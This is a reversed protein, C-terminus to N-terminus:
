LGSFGRIQCRRKFNEEIGFSKKAKAVAQELTMGRYLWRILIGLHIDKLEPNDDKVKKLFPLHGNRELLEKYSFRSYYDRGNCVKIKKSKPNLKALDLGCYERKLEEEM